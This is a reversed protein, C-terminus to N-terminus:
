RTCSARWVGEVKELDCQKFDFPVGATSPNAKKGSSGEELADVRADIKEIMPKGVYYDTYVSIAIPAYIALLSVIIAVLALVYGWKPLRLVEAAVDKSLSEMSLFTPAFMRSRQMIERKYDDM